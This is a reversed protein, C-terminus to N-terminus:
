ELLDIRYRERGAELEYTHSIQVERVPKGNILIETDGLEDDLLAVLVASTLVLPKPADPVAEAPAPAATEEPEKEVIEEAIREMDEPRKYWAPVKEGAAMLVEAIERKAYQHQDALTRIRASSSGLMKRYETVIVEADMPNM